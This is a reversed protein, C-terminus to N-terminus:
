LETGGFQHMIYIVVDDVTIARWEASLVTANPLNVEVQLKKKSNELKELAHLILCTIKINSSISLNMVIKQKESSTICHPFKNLIDTSNQISGQSSGFVLKM